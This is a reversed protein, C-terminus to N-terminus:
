ENAILEDIVGCIIHGCLIHSEQVRATIPNNIIIPFDCMEAGRGGSGGFLGITKMRRNKAEELAVLVNASNGSTSIGIFIDGENGFAEVQRAFIREFGYDNGVATLISTDTTLAIAPLARRESVFRGVLEAAIHQSDAASGGNGCILVKGGANVSDYIARAVSEIMAIKADDGLLSQMTSISNEISNKIYNKM